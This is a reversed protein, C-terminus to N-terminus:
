SGKGLVMWAVVGLLLLTTTSMGQQVPPPGGLTQVNQLQGDQYAGGVMASMANMAAGKIGATMVANWDVDSSASSNMMTAPIYSYNNGDGFVRDYESM